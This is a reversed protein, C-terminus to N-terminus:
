SNGGSELAIIFHTKDWVVKPEEVVKMHKMIESNHMAPLERTISEENEKESREESREESKEETILPEESDKEGEKPEEEKEKKKEEEKKEKKEEEKEEKKVEKGGEKKVEDKPKDKGRYRPLELIPDEKTDLNEKYKDNNIDILPYGSMSRNDDKPRYFYFLLNLVPVVLSAVLEFALIFNSLVWSYFVALSAICLISVIFGGVLSFVLMYEISSKNSRDIKLGIIGYSLLYIFGLFISVLALAHYDKFSPKKIAISVIFFVLLVLTSLFSIITPIRTFPAGTLNLESGNRKQSFKSLM